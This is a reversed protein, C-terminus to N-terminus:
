GSAPSWLRSVGERGCNMLADVISLGPVFGAGHRQDYQPHQFNQYELALGAAAFAADQQYGGAGGGCLYVEGNLRGTISVLLDSSQGDVGLASSWHWAPARMGIHAALTLIAHGNYRALNREENAVLPAVCSMTEAYYPARGYSAALTKLLKDRWPLRDAFEIENVARMGSFARNIPATVWQPRGGIMMRVRNSWVGGTKQFQVHDLFVFHDSRAIKDFYGLWPFFNPQHIAVITM